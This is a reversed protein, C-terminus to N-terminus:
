GADERRWRPAFAAEVEEPTPASELGRRSVSAGALVAAVRRAAALRGELRHLAALLSAAFIDGAGTPDVVAAPVAAYPVAAGHEYHTGGAQARTVFLNPAVQAVMHELEPAAAIDEESFVTLEAARLVDPAYWRRFRVRGDDAWTRLWGQITLLRVADPFDFVLAPDVEAAIPGLHLLPASQWAAPIHESHLPEAVARIHQVRGRTRYINEYTTTQEAPVVHVQAWHRLDNLLPDQPDASTVVGVRLGFAHATRAAYSVTGGLTRGDHTLDATVHGILLYDIPQDIM